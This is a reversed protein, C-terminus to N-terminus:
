TCYCRSGPRPDCVQWCTPLSRFVRFGDVGPIRDLHDALRKDRTLFADGVSALVEHWFDYADGFDPQRGEILVANSLSMLLVGPTRLVMGLLRWDLGARLTASRPEATSRGWRGIAIAAVLMCGAEFVFPSALSVGQYLWGGTVSGVLLGLTESMFLLSVARGRDQSSPQGVMTTM